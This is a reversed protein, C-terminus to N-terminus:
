KITYVPINGSFRVLNYLEPSITPTNISGSTLGSRIIIADAASSTQILYSEDKETYIPPIIYNIDVDQKQNFVPM